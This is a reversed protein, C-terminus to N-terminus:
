NLFDSGLHYMHLRCVVHRPFSVSFQLFHKVVKGSSRSLDCILVLRSKVPLRVLCPSSLAKTELDGIFAYADDLRMIRPKRGNRRLFLKMVIYATRHNAGAFPHLVVLERMLQAGQRMMGESEAQRVRELSTLDKNPEVGQLSDNPATRRTISASSSNLCLETSLNLWGSTTMMVTQSDM